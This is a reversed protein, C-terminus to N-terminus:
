LLFNECFLLFFQHILILIFTISLSPLNISIFLLSFKPNYIDYGNSSLFVNEVFINSLIDDHGALNKYKFRGAYKWSIFALLLWLGLYACVMPLFWEPVM